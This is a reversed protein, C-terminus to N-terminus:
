RHQVTCGEQNAMMYKPVNWQPCEKGLPSVTRWRLAERLTACLYPLSDSDAFTPMRSRGIVADLEEQCKRQKELYAIMALM